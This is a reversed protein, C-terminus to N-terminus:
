VQAQKFQECRGELQTCNNLLSQVTLTDQDQFCIWDHAEHYKVAHQLLMLKM